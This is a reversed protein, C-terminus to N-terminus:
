QFRGAVRDIINQFCGSPIHDGDSFDIINEGSAAKGIMHECMGILFTHCHGFLKGFPIKRSKTKDIQHVEIHQVTMPAIHVAIRTRKGCKIRPQGTKKGYQM